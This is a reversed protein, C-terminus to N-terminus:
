AGPPTDPKSMGAFLKEIPLEFGPLVDGGTLSESRELVTVQNASSYVYVRGTDPFIAWALSVGAAFYDVIKEDIKDIINTPSLVEVALDPVVDWASAHPVSAEPWRDYSVYAADPRRRLNQQANLVFLTETVVLGLSHERAFLRLYFALESALATEYAGMPELEVIQGNIVEYLIDADGNLGKLYEEETAAPIAIAGM